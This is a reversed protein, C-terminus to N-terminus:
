LKKQKEIIANREQKMQEMHNIFREHSHKLAHYEVVIVVILFILALVIEIWIPSLVWWWSWDIVHCLKLVVFAVTLLTPLGIASSAASSNSKSM